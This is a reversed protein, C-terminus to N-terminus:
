QHSRRTKLQTQNLEAMNKTEQHMNDIQPIIAELKTEMIQLAAHMAHFQHSLQENAMILQFAAMKTSKTTFILCFGM